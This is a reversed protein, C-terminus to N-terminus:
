HKSQIEMIAKEYSSPMNWKKNKVTTKVNAAKTICKMMTTVLNPKIICKMRGEEEEEEEEGRYYLQSNRAMSSTKYMFNFKEM